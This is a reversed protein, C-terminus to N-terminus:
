VVGNQMASNPRSSSAVHVGQTALKQSTIALSSVHLDKSTFLDLHVLQASPQPMRHKPKTMNTKTHFNSLKYCSSRPCTAIFQTLHLFIM